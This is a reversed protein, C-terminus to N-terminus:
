ADEARNALSDFLRNSYPNFSQKLQFPLFLFNLGAINGPLEAEDKVLGENLVLYRYYNHTTSFESFFSQKINEGLIECLIIPRCRRISELGGKLVPIEYGEVDIKVLDINELGKLAAFRDITTQPVSITTWKKHGGYTSVSFGPVASSTDSVSKDSPVSLTIEKEEDGLAAPIINVNAAKNLELNSRLREVNAQYPEFAFIEAKPNSLSSVISYLGTNAGIDFITKSNEALKKFVKLDKIEHYPWKYYLASVIPDDAQARYMVSLGEFQFTFKGSVPWRHQYNYLFGSGKRLLTRVARNVAINRRVIELLKKL